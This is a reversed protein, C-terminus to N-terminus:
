AHGPRPIARQAEYDSSRANANEFSITLPAGTTKENFYGSLFQPMDTEKRPTTGAKNGGQRRGLDEQFDELTLSTGPPCGDITVGVCPGHSEGWIHVRFIRGFSNM